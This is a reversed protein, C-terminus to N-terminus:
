YYRWRKHDKDWERHKYHHGNSVYDTPEINAPHANLGGAPLSAAFTGSSVGLAMVAGIAISLVFTRM